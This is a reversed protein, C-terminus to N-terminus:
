GGICSMASLRLVKGAGPDAYCSLIWEREDKWSRYALSDFIQHDIKIRYELIERYKSQFDLKSVLNAIEQSRKIKKKKKKERKENKKM